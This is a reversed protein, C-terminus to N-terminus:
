QNRAIHVVVNEKPLYYLEITSSLEDVAKKVGPWYSGYDDWVIVGNKRVLALAKDSDSKCVEYSHGGDVIIIGARGYLHSLDLKTSDGIISQIKGRISEAAALFIEGTKYQAYEHGEINADIDVAQGISDGIDVTVIERDSNLALNYTTRGRFTGFEVIPTYGCRALSCLFILEKENPLDGWKWGLKGLAIEQEYLVPFLSSADATQIQAACVPAGNQNNASSMRRPDTVQHHMRSYWRSVWPTRCLIKRFAQGVGGMM